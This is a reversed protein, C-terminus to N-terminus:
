ERQCCRLWGELEELRDIRLVGREKYTGAVDLLLGKMGVNAAGLYDVSYTDGVYLSEAAKAGLQELAAHFIAPHPKEYGVVGSDTVGLFCDGIVCRKLVAAISGDSNSILGLKYKRGLKVLLDHTGPLVVDWNASTRTNRVLQGAIESDAVNLLSLLRSYYTEWYKKDGAPHSDANLKDVEAKAQREATHLQNRSPFVGCRHLPELTRELNPFVLTNGADFFITSLQAL